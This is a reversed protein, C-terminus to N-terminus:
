NQYVNLDINVMYVYVLFLLTRAAFFLLKQHQFCLFRFCACDIITLAVGIIKFYDSMYSSWDAFIWRAYWLTGLLIISCLSCLRIKRYTYMCVVCVSLSPTNVYM